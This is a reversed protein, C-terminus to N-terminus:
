RGERIKPKRASFFKFMEEARDDPKNLGRELTKCFYNGYSLSSYRDKRKNSQEKIKITNDRIESELNVMEDILLQTQAYPLLLKGQMYPDLEKYFDNEKLKREADDVDLLLRIKGQHIDNRLIAACDSSFAQTAKIAYIVKKAGMVSCRKAMEDNNMCSIAPYTKLTEKDFMECVLDDFIAIGVSAADLVLYDCELEDFLKRIQLSQTKTHGGNYVEGYVVNKRYQRHKGAGNLEMEICFVATNDNNKGGMVAVDVTLVRINGNKKEPYKFKKHNIAEYIDKPYIPMEVTRIKELDEYMFFAEEDCGLFICEREMEWRARSFGEELMKNELNRRDAIGELIALQYPLACVSYDERTLFANVYMLFFDYSWHTKYWASSMYIEKNSEVLHEYKPNGLYNPQRPVSNFPQLVDRLIEKDVIRYEDVILINSRQGRSLENSAVAIIKSRNHFEIYSDQKTIRFSKIERKLNESAYMIEGTIKELVLNAQSRSGSAVVVKTGPYLICRACIYISCLFTKGIGRAALFLFYLDYDMMILIIKQFLKLRINLYDEVFIDIHKKYFGVWKMINSMKAKIKADIDYNTEQQPIKAMKMVMLPM